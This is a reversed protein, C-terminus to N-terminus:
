NAASLMREIDHLGLLSEWAQGLDDADVLTLVPKENRELASDVDWFRAIWPRVPLDNVLSGDHPAELSGDLRLRGWAMLDKGRFRQHAQDALLVAIAVALDSGSVTTDCFVEVLGTPLAFGTNHIATRVRNTQASRRQGVVPGLVRLVSRGPTRIATVRHLTSTSPILVTADM